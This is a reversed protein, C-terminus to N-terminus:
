DKVCRVSLGDDKDQPSLSTYGKSFSFLGLSYANSSNYETSSWFLTYETLGSFTVFIGRAKTRIGGLLASFGSRNTGTGEGKGQGVSKLANADEQVITGMKNFEVKAPLHWGGPCVEKATEWNYLRGFRDCNSREKDFCWNGKSSLVHVMDYWISQDQSPDYNLNESMWWQDGIKLTKYTKGDRTDKLTDTQQAELVPILLLIILVTMIMKKM